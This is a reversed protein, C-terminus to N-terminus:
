SLEMPCADGLACLPPDTRHGFAHIEAHTARREVHRREYRVLEGDHHRAFVATGILGETCGFGDVAKVVRWEPAAYKESLVGEKLVVYEGKFTGEIM